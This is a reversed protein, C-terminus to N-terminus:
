QRLCCFTTRGVAASRFANSPLRSRFPCVKATSGVFFRLTATGCDMGTNRKSNGSSLDPSSRHKAICNLSHWLRVDADYKKHARQTKPVRYKNNAILKNGMEVINRPCRYNVRLICTEMERASRDAFNIIYDPSCGRFGYIAQDDDGVVILQKAAALTQILEFDLRNIDQFEDVIVSRYRAMVANVLSLNDRLALYPLLKQDDFDISRRRQLEYEYKRYIHVILNLITRRQKAALPGDLGELWPQFLGHEVLELFKDIADQSQNILENAMIIHNKLASILDVYVRAALRRPLMNAKEPVDKRLKRLIERVIERAQRVPDDGVQHRSVSERLAGRVLRYGFSNLTFVNPAGVTMGSTQIGDHMKDRLSSAAANDFTLILFQDLSRSERTCYHLVRNAISQTKGSGAPALLRITRSDCNIFALQDEDADRTFDIESSFTPTQVQAVLEDVKSRIAEDRGFIDDIEIPEFPDKHFGAM